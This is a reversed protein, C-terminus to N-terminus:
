SRRRAAIAEALALDAPTTVKVNDASGEVIRVRGGGREYVAATDTATFGAGRAQDHAQLIQWLSFAQPTQAAWLDAPYGAVMGDRAAVVAPSAPLALIAGGGQAAAILTAIRSAPPFPRAADHVLVLGDEDMFLRAAQLGIWESEQRTAGGRLVRKVKAARVERVLRESEAVDGEAVVLLVLEVERLGEFLSLSWALMPRGGLPLFAKNRGAGMRRGEGAALVIAAVAVAAV